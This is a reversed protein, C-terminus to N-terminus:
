KTNGSSMNDSMVSTPCSNNDIHVNALYATIMKFKKAIFSFWLDRKSKDELRLVYDFLKAENGIDHWQCFKIIQDFLEADSGDGSLLKELPYNNLSIIGNIDYQIKNIHEKCDLHCLYRTYVMENNVKRVDRLPDIGLLEWPSETGDDTFFSKVFNIVTGKARGKFIIHRHPKKHILPLRSGDPISYRLGYKSFGEYLELIYDRIEQTNDYSMYVGDPNICSVSDSSDLDQMANWLDLLPKPYEAFDVFDFYDRDHVPSVACPVGMAYLVHLWSVCCTTQGDVKFCEPPYIKTEFYTGERTLHVAYNNPKRGSGKGGM